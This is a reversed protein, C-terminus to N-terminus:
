SSHGSVEDVFCDHLLVANFRQILVSLRKNNNSFTNSLRWHSWAWKETTSLEAKLQLVRIDIKACEIVLVFTLIYTKSFYIPWRRFM